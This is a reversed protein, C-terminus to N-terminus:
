DYRALLLEHELRDLSGDLLLNLFSEKLVNEGPLVARPISQAFQLNSPVKSDTLSRDAFGKPLKGLQLDDFRMGMTPSPHPFEREDIRGVDKVNTGSKFFEGKETWPSGTIGREVFQPTMNFIRQRARRNGIGCVVHMSIVLKMALNNFRSAIFREDIDPVREENRQSNLGGYGNQSGAFKLLTRALVQIHDIEKFLAVPNACSRLKPVM